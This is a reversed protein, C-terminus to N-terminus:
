STCITPNSTDEDMVGDIQLIIKWKGDGDGARHGRVVM